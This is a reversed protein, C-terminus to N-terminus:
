DNSLPTTSNTQASGAAKLLSTTSNTKQFEVTENTIVIDFAMILQFLAAAVMTIVFLLFVLRLKRYHKLEIKLDDYTRKKYTLMLRILQYMFIAVFICGLIGISSVNKGDDNIIVSLGLCSLIACFLDLLFVFVFFCDPKVRICGKGHKKDILYLKSESINVGEEIQIEKKPM